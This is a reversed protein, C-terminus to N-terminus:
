KKLLKNQTRQIEVRLNNWDPVKTSDEQFLLRASRIKNALEIMEAQADSQLDSLEYGILECASMDLQGLADWFLSYGEELTKNAEIFSKYMLTNHEPYGLKWEEYFIKARSLHKKACEFCATLGEILDYGIGQVTSPNIWDLDFNNLQTSDSIISNMPLYKKIMDPIFESYVGLDRGDKYYKNIESIILIIYKNRVCVPCSDPANYKANLEEIIKTLEPFIINLDNLKNFINEITVDSVVADQLTRMRVNSEKWEQMFEAIHAKDVIAPGIITYPDSVEILNVFQGITIINHKLLNLKKDKNFAEANLSEHVYM